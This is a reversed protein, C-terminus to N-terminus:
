WMAHWQLELIGGQLDRLLATGMRLISQLPNQFFFIKQASILIIIVIM